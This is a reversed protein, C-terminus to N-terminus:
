NPRKRELEIVVRFGVEPNPRDFREVPVTDQQIKEFNFPEPARYTEARLDVDNRGDVLRTWEWGNGLMDRCGYPSVDLRAAGVPRPNEDLVNVAIMTGTRDTPKWGHPYTSAGRDQEDKGAALDWEERSPLFGQGRGGLWEAFAQAEVGTAGLVPWRPNRDKNWRSGKVKEPNERAFAAFLEVWVKDRMIYFAVRSGTGEKNVLRAVVPQKVRDITREIVTPYYTKDGIDVLRSTELRRWHDPLTAVPPDQIVLRVPLTKTTPGDTAIFVLSRSQPVTNPDPIQVSFQRQPGETPQQPEVRIEKPLGDGVRVETTSAFHDPSVRIYISGSEGAQVKLEAPFAEISLEEPVGETPRQSPSPNLLEPSSRPWRALVVGGLGLGAFAALIWRRDVKSPVVVPPPSGIEPAALRLFEQALARASAPRRRPDKELCGLVLKEIEPKVEAHPNREQFSPAPTHLIDNFLQFHSSEFPRCGTLLEYLIVGVSYIDARADVRSAGQFQEPSMYVPTGMPVGTATLEQAQTGLLFKALGFDLVKLDIEEPNGTDILMLNSPKLDRHIIRSDHASQLVDCLQKLIEATQKLPLPVKPKLRKNLPQGQLYEMEIYPPDEMCVDYVRVAHPHHVRAMAQAERHLRKRLEDNHAHHPHIFKVARDEGLARHRVRWVEGMGGKGIMEIKEFKSDFLSPSTVGSLSSASPTRRVTTTARNSPAPPPSEWHTTPQDSEPASIAALRPTLIHKLPPFRDLYDNVSVAMGHDRRLQYDRVILGARAEDELEPYRNLYFEVEHPLGAELRFKLDARVLEVLLAARRSGTGTLYDEIQPEQGQEWETVFGQIM